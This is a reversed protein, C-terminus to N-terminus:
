WLVCVCVCVCVCLLVVGEWGEWKDTQKQPHGTNGMGDQQTNIFTEGWQFGEGIRGEDRNEVPYVVPEM